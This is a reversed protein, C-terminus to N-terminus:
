RCGSTWGLGDLRLARGWELKAGVYCDGLLDQIFSLGDVLGVAKFAADLGVAIEADVMVEVM